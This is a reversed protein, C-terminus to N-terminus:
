FLFEYKFDTLDSTTYKKRPFLRKEVEAYIRLANKSAEIRARYKRMVSCAESNACYLCYSYAKGENEDYTHPCKGMIVIQIQAMMQNELDNEGWRDNYALFRRVNPTRLVINALHTAVEGLRVNQAETITGDRKAFLLEKLENSDIYRGKM